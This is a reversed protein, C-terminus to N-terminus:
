PRLRHRTRHACRGFRPRERISSFTPSAIAEDGPGPAAADRSASGRCCDLTQKSSPRAVAPGTLTDARIVLEKEAVKPFDFLERFNERMSRDSVRAAARTTSRLFRAGGRRTSACALLFGASCERGELGESLLQIEQACQGVLRGQENLPGGRAVPGLFRDPVHPFRRELSDRGFPQLAIWRLRPAREGSSGGVLPPSSRGPM